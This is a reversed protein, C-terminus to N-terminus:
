LMSRHGTTITGVTLATVDEMEVARGIMTWIMDQWTAQSQTNTTMWPMDLQVVVEPCIQMHPHGMTLDSLLGSDIM